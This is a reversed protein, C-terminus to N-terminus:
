LELDRLMSDVYIKIGDFQVGDDFLVLLFANGAGTLYVNERSQNAGSLAPAVMQNTSNAGGLLSRASGVRSRINGTADILVAAKVSVHEGLDTMLQNYKAQEGLL